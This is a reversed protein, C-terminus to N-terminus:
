SIVHIIGFVAFQVAVLPKQGIEPRVPLQKEYGHDEHDHYRQRVKHDRPDDLIDDILHEFALVEPHKVDDDDGDHTCEEDAGQRCEAVSVEHPIYPLGDDHVESVSQVMVQLLQRDSVVVASSRAIDHTIQRVINGSELCGDDIVEDLHHLFPCDEDPGKSGHDVELPFQRNETKDNNREYGEGDLEEALLEVRAATGYLFSQSVHRAHQLFRDLAHTDYSAKVAAVKFFATEAFDVLAAELRSDTSDALLALHCRENFEERRNCDAGDDPVAAYGDDVANHGGAFQNCEQNIGDVQGVRCSSQCFAEAVDLFRQCSSVADKGDKVFLRFHLVARACLREDHGFAADFCAM